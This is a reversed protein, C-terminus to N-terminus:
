WHSFMEGFVEPDIFVVNKGEGNVRENGRKPKTIFVWLGLKRRLNREEIGFNRSALYAGEGRYLCRHWLSPDTGPAAQPIKLHYHTHTNIKKGM